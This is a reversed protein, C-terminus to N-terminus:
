GADAPGPPAINAGTGGKTTPVTALGDLGAYGGAQGKESENQYVGHPDVLTEHAVVAADAALDAYDKDAINQKEIGGIEGSPDSVDVSHFTVDDAAPDHPVFTKTATDYRYLQVAAM